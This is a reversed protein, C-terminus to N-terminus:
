AARYTALRVAEQLVKAHALPHQISQYAGIPGRFVERKRAHDCARDLCYQSLGVMAAAFLAREANFAAFMPAAAMHEEAVRDDAPVVVDEFTLEFPTLGGDGHAAIPRRAIGQARADVVLLSLGATKPLRRSQCEEVTLTRALVLLFDAVDAGSIYRKRGTLRYCDGDRRAFTSARLINFGAEEETVALCFRRSGATVAPLHVERLRTSGHRAILVTGVATLVALNVPLGTACMEELVLALPLLGAETGGFSRPVLSALARLDALVRWSEEIAERSPRSTRPQARQCARRVAQQLQVQDDSLAFDLAV